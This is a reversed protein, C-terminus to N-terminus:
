HSLLEPVLASTKSLQIPEKAAFKNPKEDLIPIAEDAFSCIYRAVVNDPKQTLTKSARDRIEKLHSSLQEAENSSLGGPIAAQPESYTNKNFVHDDQIAELEVSVGTATRRLRYRALWTSIEFDGNDRAKDNDLVRLMVGTSEKGDLPQFHWRLVSQNLLEIRLTDGNDQISLSALNPWKEHRVLTPEANKVKFITYTTWMNEHFSMVSKRPTEFVFYVVAFEKNKSYNIAWEYVSEKPNYYQKHWERYIKANLKDEVGIKKLADDDTEKPMPYFLEAQANKTM